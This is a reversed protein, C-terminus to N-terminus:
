ELGADIVGDEIRDRVWTLREPSLHQTGARERSMYDGCGNDFPYGSRLGAQIFQGVIENIMLRARMEAEVSEGFNIKHWAPIAYCLGIHPDFVGEEKGNTTAWLLWAKYFHMLRASSKIIAKM